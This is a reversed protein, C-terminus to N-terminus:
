LAGKSQISRGHLYGPHTPTPCIDIANARWRIGLRVRLLVFADVALKEFGPLLVEVLLASRPM